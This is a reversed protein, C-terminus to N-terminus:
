CGNVFGNSQALFQRGHGFPLLYIGTALFRSRRPGPDNGRENRTGFRDNLPGGSPSPNGQEVGFGVPGDNNANSLDKAWDYTAQMYFGSALRHSLQLEMDQYNGFGVNALTYIPGWQPFPLVCPGHPTPHCQNQDIQVPLRYSNEGIYSVRGTWTSLFQREVTVNWQASQPDKYDTTQADDFTYTGVDSPVLGGNGYAVDPLRFLPQGNVISNVYTPSNTSATGTMQYAVGGLTPVTFLGVGARFVTKDNGFPRYAIGL